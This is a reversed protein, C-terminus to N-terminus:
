LGAIPEATFPKKVLPGSAASEFERLLAVERPHRVSLSSAITSLRVNPHCQFKDAQRGFFPQPWCAVSGDALTRNTYTIEQTTTQFTRFTQANIESVSVLVFLGFLGKILKNMLKEFLPHNM